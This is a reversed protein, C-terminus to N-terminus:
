KGREEGNAYKKKSVEKAGPCTKEGRERLRRSM